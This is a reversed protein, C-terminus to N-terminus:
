PSEVTMRRSLTGSGFTGQKDRKKLASIASNYGQVWLGVREDEKIYPSAHALSGYLYVDYANTLLWNTDANDTLADYPRYYSLLADPSDTPPPATILYDGEITYYAPTGTDRYAASSYLVSPPQYELLWETDSDLTIREMELFDAPLAMSQATLTMTYTRLMHRIRLDRRIAAEALRIFSPIAATLDDRLLWGAIDAKLTAYTTM